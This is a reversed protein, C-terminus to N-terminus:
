YVMKLLIIICFKQYIKNKWCSLVQHHYGNFSTFSNIYEWVKKNSTHFIHTGFKHYEIGTEADVESFCNGGIHTYKDIVVVRQNKDNAIREAIVSGFFGAGVVLYKLNTFDM